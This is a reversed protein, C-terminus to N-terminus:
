PTPWGRWADRLGGVGPRSSPPSPRANPPSPPARSQRPTRGVRRAHGRHRQRAPWRGPAAGCRASAPHPRRRHRARRSPRPAGRARRRPVRSTCGPRGPGPRPRQPRVGDRQARRVTGVPAARTPPQGPHAGDRDRPDGGRDLVARGGVRGRRAGRRSGHRHARARRAARGPDLAPHGAMGGGRAGLDERGRQPGAAGTLGEPDPQFEAEAFCRFDTLWLTSIAVTVRPHRSRRPGTAVVGQGAHPPLPLGAHDPARVTAPKTADVTELVVEDGLVAEVGDILYSPNFAM